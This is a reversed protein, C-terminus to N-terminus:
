LKKHASQALYLLAEDRLRYEDWEGAQAIEIIHLALLERTAELEGAAFKAGSGLVVRWAADFAAILVRIEKEDFAPGERTKLIKLV